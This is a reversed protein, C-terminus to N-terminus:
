QIKFNITKASGKVGKGDASSYPTATLTFAGAVASWSSYDGLTESWVAYPAVNDTRSKSVTGTLATKISGVSSPSTNVRINVKKTPLSALKIVAGDSISEYGTIPQDTIANILTFSLISEVPAAGVTFFADSMDFVSSQAVSSVRVQYDSGLQQSAPVLWAHTGDNTTSSTITQLSNGGKYLAIKVAGSINEMNWTITETVGQRWLDGGNPSVITIRPSITNGVIFNVQNSPVGNAYVQVMYVGGVVLPIECGCSQDYSTLSAPIVFSLKDTGQLAITPYSYGFGNSFFVFVNGSFNAGNLTVTSGIPSSGPSVSTISPPANVTINTQYTTTEGSSANTIDVKLTYNGPLANSPVTFSVFKSSEGEPALAINDIGSPSVGYQWNSPSVLAANFVSGACTSSDTNVFMISVYGSGGQSVVNTLSSSTVLPASRVCPAQTIGVDFTIANADASVIGGITIGTALDQFAAMGRNQTAQTIDTIWLDVTPSMDLLRPFPFSNTPRIIYNVFLGNQNASLASTALNSDFGIGRRYELYFPAPLNTGAMRIAALKTVSGASEIPNLTYRGSSQITLISSPAIWGLLEKYFANFHLSHTGTGMTDFSNGYERHTCTGRLIATDCDWGNAHMVGLSHGLEHSLLYDLNTWAFPMVGWVSSQNYTMVNGIWSKSYSYTGGNFTEMTKGVFSCGGGLNPHALLFVIRGYLALNINHSILYQTVEPTSIDAQMCAGGSLGTQPVTIWDTVDGSFSVQNYSQEKYFNQFASNFIIGQAQTSTFPVAGTDSFKVLIVLAHQDGLSDPSTATGLVSVNGAYAVVGDAFRVGEVRVRTNSRFEIEHTLFLPTSKGNERLIYNFHSLDGNEFDDVHVVDVTGALTVNSEVETQMNKPLKERIQPPLVHTLFAEPDEKALTALLEKRRRMNAVLKADHSASRGFVGLSISTESLINVNLAEIETAVDNVMTDKAKSAASSVTFVFISGAFVISLFFLASYLTKKM